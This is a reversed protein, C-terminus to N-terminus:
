NGCYCLIDSGYLYSTANMEANEIATACLAAMELTPCEQETEIYGIVQVIGRDAFDAGCLSEADTCLEAAIEDKEAQAVSSPTPVIGLEYIIRNTGSEYCNVIYNYKIHSGWPLGWERDQLELFQCNDCPAPYFNFDEWGKEMQKAMRKAKRKNTHLTNEVIKIREM